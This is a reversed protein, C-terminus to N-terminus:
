GGAPGRKEEAYSPRMYDPVLTFPDACLGAEARGRALAAADAASPHWAEAPPVVLDSRGAVGDAAALAPGAVRAGSPLGDLWAARGVLAPSTVTWGARTPSATAAWVEGRGADYAIAIAADTWGAVHEARRAIVEFGSIGVLRAGTAWALTKAATVGVRLGTFSGPGTVVAIVDPPGLDGLPRARTGWGREAAVATLIATLVRAHDGAPGLSRETTGRDDVAAVSGVAVSTDIALIRM